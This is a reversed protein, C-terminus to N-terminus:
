ISNIMVLPLFSAFDQLNFGKLLTTNLLKHREHLTLHSTILIDTGGNVM